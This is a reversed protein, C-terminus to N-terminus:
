PNPDSDWVPETEGPLREPAVAARPNMGAVRLSAGRISGDPGANHPLHAPLHWRQVAGVLLAVVLLLYTACGKMAARGIKRELGSKTLPLGISRSLRQKATSIGLAHKWSFSFGFKRPM